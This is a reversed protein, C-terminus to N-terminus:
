RRYGANVSGRKRILEIVENPWPAFDVLDGLCFIDTIGRADIDRLVANLAPLNAHVDSFIAIQRGM